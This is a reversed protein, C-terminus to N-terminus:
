TTLTLYSPALMHRVKATAILNDLTDSAWKLNMAPEPFDECSIKIYGHESNEEESPGIGSDKPPEPTWRPGALLKIRHIAADTKLGLRSVPM